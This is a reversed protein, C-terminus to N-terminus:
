NFFQMFSHILMGIATALIIYAFGKKLSQQPLRKAISQGILSGLIGVSTFIFLTKWDLELMMQTNVAFHNALGASANFFIITLSTPVAAGMPLRALTVLAPVILFGGGVGVLGTVGGLGLGTFGLRLKGAQKYQKVPARKSLMRWAALVMIGALLIFQLEGSIWNSFSAALGSGVMGALSLWIVAKFNIQGKRLNLLASVGSIVAVIFLAGVIAQKETFGVAYVLLPVTIISGGAGLLGLSLGIFIAGFLITLM